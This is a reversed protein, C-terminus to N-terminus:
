PVSIDIYQEILIRKKINLSVYLNGDEGEYVKGWERGEIKSIFKELVEDMKGPPVKRARIIKKLDASNEGYSNKKNLNYIINFELDDFPELVKEKISLPTERTGKRRYERSIRKRGAKKERQKDGRFKSKKGLRPNNKEHGGGPNM